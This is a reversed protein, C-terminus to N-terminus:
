MDGSGEADGSGEGEASGEGEGSGEGGGGEGEACAGLATASAGECTLGDACNLQGETDCPAGIPLEVCSADSCGGGLAGCDYGVPQSVSCILAFIDGVCAGGTEPFTSADCPGVGETCTAAEASLMCGADTGACLLPQPGQGFDVLCTEGVPLACYYGFEDDFFQCEAAVGPVFETACDIQALSGNDCWVVTSGQCEGQFTVDGCPEGTGGGGGPDTTSEQCCGDVCTFGAGCDRSSTCARDECGSGTEEAMGADEAMSADGSTDAQEGGGTDQPLVTTTDDGCGILAACLVSLALILNKM